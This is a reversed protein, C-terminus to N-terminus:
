ASFKSKLKVAYRRSVEFPEPINKLYVRYSGNFWKEFKLVFELNLIVSRHIRLFIEGPLSEEWEKILKRIMMKRGDDLRIHSYKEEAEICMINAIKVSEPKSNNMLIIFADKSYKNKREEGSLADYDHSAVKNIIREAKSLRTEVSTLLDNAAFPKFLYDDAGLQMGYRIDKLETKATLFLFPIWSTEPNKNLENLVAYGDMRPMSIDCIILDPLSLRISKIGEIGDTSNIVEYGALELLEILSERVSNDDEIVLIKKKM